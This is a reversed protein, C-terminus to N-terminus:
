TTIALYWLLRLSPDHDHLRPGERAFDPPAPASAEPPKRWQCSYQQMTSLSGPHAPDLRAPSPAVLRQPGCPARYWTPSLWSGSVREEQELKQFELKQEPTLSPEKEIINKVVGLVGADPLVDGVVDLVHPAKEKLWSGLKTDRIHEM